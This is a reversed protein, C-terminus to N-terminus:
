KELIRWVWHLIDPAMKSPLAGKTAFHWKQVGGICLTYVCPFPHFRRECWFCQTWYKHCVPLMKIYYTLCLVAPYVHIVETVGLGYPKKVFSLAFYLIVNVMRM